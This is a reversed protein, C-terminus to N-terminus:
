GAAAGVGTVIVKRPRRCIWWRSRALTRDRWEAYDAITALAAMFEATADRYQPDYQAM